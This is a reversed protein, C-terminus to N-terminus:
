GSRGKSWELWGSLQKAIEEIIRNFYEFRKLKMVKLDSTLRIHIRLQELKLQAEELSDKKDKKSNAVVICNLLDSIMEKLRQGLTYKFERPFQRTTQYIELTLKYTHQFIPLHNYQAM